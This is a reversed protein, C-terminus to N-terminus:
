NIIYEKKWEDFSKVCKKNKFLIRRIGHEFVYKLLLVVGEFITEDKSLFEFAMKINKHKFYELSIRRYVKAKIKRTKKEGLDNLIYKIKNLYHEYINLLKEPTSPNNRQARYKAILYEKIGYGKYKYLIRTCFEWDQLRKYSEDFEKVEDLVNRRIVFMSSNFDINGILLDYMIDGQLFKSVKPAGCGELNVNYGGCYVLGYSDDLTEFVDIQKKLKEPFWIDDDDLFALYEGKSVRIGTNRAASGNKNVKHKLYIIENSDIFKKLEKETEKQAPTGEGNDDVVIIEKNTYTQNLVSQVVIPITDSGKYTPIIVSVVKEVM